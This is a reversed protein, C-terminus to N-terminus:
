LAGNLTLGLGAGAALGIWASTKRKRQATESYSAAYCRADDVEYALMREASPQPTFVHALVPMIVPLLVGGVIWGARGQRERADAAGDRAAVQCGTPLAAVPDLTIREAHQMASALLPGAEVPGATLLVAAALALVALREYLVAPWYRVFRANSAAHPSRSRSMFSQPPTGQRCVTGRGALTARRGRYDIALEGLAFAAPGARRRLAARVQAMLETASFQKVLYDDAGADLARALAEARDYASIFIVPLEALAPVQAMLEIGDSGPLVLDLLM